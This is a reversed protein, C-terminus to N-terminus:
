TINCAPSISDFGPGPKEGGLHETQVLVTRQLSFCSIHLCHKSAVCTRHAFKLFTLAFLRVNHVYLWQRWVTKSNRLWENFELALEFSEVWKISRVPSSLWRKVSFVLLFLKFIRCILVCDSVDLKSSNKNCCVFYLKSITAIDSVHSLFLSRRIFCTVM